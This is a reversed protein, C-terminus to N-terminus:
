LLISLHSLWQRYIKMMLLVMGKLLREQDKSSLNDESFLTQIEPKLPTSALMVAIKEEVKELVFKRVLHEPISIPCTQKLMENCYFLM